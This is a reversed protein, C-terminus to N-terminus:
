KIKKLFKKRKVQCYLLFSLGSIILVGCIILIGGTTSKFTNGVNVIISNKLNSNAINDVTIEVDNSNIEEEMDGNIISAKVKYKKSTDIVTVDFTYEIEENEDIFDKDWTITNIDKDYVGENSASGEVYNLGKPLEVKELNPCNAFLSSQIYDVKRPIEIDCGSGEPGISTILEKEKDAYFNKYELKM